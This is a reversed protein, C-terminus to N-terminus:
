FFWFFFWLFDSVGLRFDGVRLGSFSGVCGVLGLVGGYRSSEERWSGM